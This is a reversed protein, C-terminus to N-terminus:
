RSYTTSFNSTIRKVSWLEAAIQRRDSRLEAMLTLIEAMLEAFATDPWPPPSPPLTLALPPPPLKEPDQEVLAAADYSEDETSAPQESPPPRPPTAADADAMTARAQAVRASTSSVYTEVSSSQSWM